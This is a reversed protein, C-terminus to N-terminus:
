RCSCYPVTIVNTTTTTTTAAAATTTTTLAAALFLLPLTIGYKNGLTPGLCLQDRHVSLLDAHSYLKDGPPLSGNSEALGTHYRQLCEGSPAM